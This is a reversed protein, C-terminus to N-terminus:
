KTGNASPNGAGPQGNSEAHDDPRKTFDFEPNPEDQPTASPDRQLPYRVPTQRARTFARITYWRALNVGALVLALSAGLNLRLSDFRADLGPMIWQRAFIALGVVLFFFAMGLRMSSVSMSTGEAVSSICPSDEEMM